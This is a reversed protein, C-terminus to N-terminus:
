RAPSQEAGGVPQEIEGALDDVRRVGFATASRLDGHAHIAVDPFEPLVPGVAQVPHGTIAIEHRVELPEAAVLVDGQYVFRSHDDRVFM